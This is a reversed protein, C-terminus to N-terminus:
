TVGDCPTYLRYSGFRDVFCFNEQLVREPELWGRHSYPFLKKWIDLEHAHLILIDASKIDEDLHAKPQNTVGPTVELNHATIKLNPLLYYLAIDAYLPRSLDLYSVFVTNGPQSREDVAALLGRVDAAQKDNYVPLSRGDHQVVPSPDSLGHLARGLSAGLPAPAALLPALGVFGAFVGSSVRLLPVEHLRRHVLDAALPIVVVGAFLLHTVDCRQLAQPMLLLGLLVLPMSNSVRTRPLAAGLVTILVAALVAYFLHKENSFVPPVPLRSEGAGHLARDLISSTYPSPFVALQILTPILGFLLGVLWWRADSRRSWLIPILPIIAMPAADPRWTIALGSLIGSVVLTLRASGRMALAISWLSFALCGLFAFAIDGMPLLLLASTAGLLAATGRGRDRFLTYIAMVIAVHSALGVLREVLISPTFLWYLAALSYTEGPGYASMFDRYPFHGGLIQLPYVLLLGEDESLGPEVLGHLGLLVVVLM